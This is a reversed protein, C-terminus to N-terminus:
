RVLPPPGLNQWRSAHAISRAELESPTGAAETDGNSPPTEVTPAIYTFGHHNLWLSGSAESTASIWSTTETLMGLSKATVYLQTRGGGAVAAAELQWQDQPLLLIITQVGSQQIDALGEELERDDYLQAPPSEYSYPSASAADVNAASLKLRKRVRVGRSNAEVAFMSAAAAGGHQATYIVAVDKFGVGALLQGLVSITATGISTSIPTSAASTGAGGGRISPNTRALYPSLSSAPTAISAEFAVCPTQLASCTYGVAELVSLEDSEPPGKNTIWYIYIYYQSTM